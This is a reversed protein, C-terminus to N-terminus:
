PQRREQLAERRARRRERLDEQREQFRERVPEAEEGAPGDTPMVSARRAPPARRLAAIADQREQPTLDAFAEVIDDQFVGIAAQDAQRVRAFAARVRQADYPEAAAADFAERRAQAAAQRVSRSEVWSEALARRVKVRTEDPLAAMFARAGPMRAIAAEPADRQLRVGAGYGGAVAGLILLNFAVSIFLLTRWPFPKDSM